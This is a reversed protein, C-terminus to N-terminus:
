IQYIKLNRHFFTYHKSRSEVSYFYRCCYKCKYIIHKKYELLEMIISTYDNSVIVKFNNDYLKDLYKQQNDSIIGNGKPTKM